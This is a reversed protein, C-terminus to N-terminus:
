ELPIKNSGPGPPTYRRPEHVPGGALHALIADVDAAQVGCYWVGEPYVCVMPGHGCQSLCGSKNIRIRDARGKERVRAKLETWIAESGQVPCTKGGLCVFAHVSYPNSM